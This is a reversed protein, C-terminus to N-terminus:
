QQKQSKIYQAIQENTRESVTTICYSPNWLHGKWLQEKMQPYDIFLWRASTGKIIKVMTPINFQPTCDVLLHVHDEMVEMEQITFGCKDALIRLYEKLKEDIGDKLIKKRYKTCFIIHYQLSYAYGRGYTLGEKQKNM